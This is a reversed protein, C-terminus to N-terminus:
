QKCLLWTHNGSVGSSLGGHLNNGPSGHCSWSSGGGVACSGAATHM